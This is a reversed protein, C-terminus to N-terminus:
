VSQPVSGEKVFKRMVKDKDTQLSIIYMGAKLGAINIIAEKNFAQQLLLRGSLDNITLLANIFFPASVTFNNHAPNPYISVEVNQKHEPVGVGIICLTDVCGMSDMKIVWMDQFGVDTVWGCAIYGGDPTPKIDRLYNADCLGTCNTTSPYYSRYWLSDGQPSIKFVRGLVGVNPSFNGSHNGQGAAIYNGDNTALITFPGAYDLTDGYDRIWITVGLSDVEMFRFVTNDYNPLFQQRNFCTSIIYNGNPLLEVYAPCDDGINGYSRQWKFNGSSDIKLLYTDVNGSISTINGGIIYGGDFTQQVSFAQEYVNPSGITKQWQVNGLSDTKVIYLDVLSPGFPNSVGVAIFGSDSTQKVQYFQYDSISDGYFKTWLSDGNINLKMLMALVAGNDIGGGLMYGDDYTKVMSGVLGLFYDASDSGYSKRYITNGNTDIKLLALHLRNNISDRALGGILYSNPEVILAVAGDNNNSGYFNYLSDFRMIQCQSKIALFFLGIIIKIKNM